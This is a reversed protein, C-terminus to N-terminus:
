RPAAAKRAYKIEADALPQDGVRRDRMQLTFNNEDTFKVVYISSAEDGDPLVGVASGFWQNGDRGWLAEGYGGASDFTWSKIQGTLPDLGMLMIVTMENNGQKVVFTQQLYAKGLIPRCNMTTTSDKDSTQWDGVLWELEKVPSGNADGESPLDHASTLVWKGDTKVWAATFRGKDVEGTPSTMESTGEGLAVDPRVFRVSKLNLTMKTGKQDTFAKRFLAVIADRGKFVTGAEDTYEADAAWHTGIGSVDGKNFAAAYAAIAQRLVQEEANPQAATPRQAGAFGAVIAIVTVIAIASLQRSM